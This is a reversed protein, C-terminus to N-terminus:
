HKGSCFDCHDQETEHVHLWTGRMHLTEQRTNMTDTVSHAQMSRTVNEPNHVPYLKCVQSQTEKQTCVKVPIQM